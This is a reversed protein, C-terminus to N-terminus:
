LSETGRLRLIGPELISGSLRGELFAVDIVADHAVLSHLNANQLANRLDTRFM